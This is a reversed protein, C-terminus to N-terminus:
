LLAVRTKIAGTCSSFVVSEVLVSGDFDCEAFQNTLSPMVSLM